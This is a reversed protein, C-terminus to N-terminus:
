HGVELFLEAEPAGSENYSCEGEVDADGSGHESRLLLGTLDLFAGGGARSWALKHVLHDTGEAPVTHEELRGSDRNDGDTKAEDYADIKVEEQQHGEHHLRSVM